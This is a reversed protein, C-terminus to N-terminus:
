SAAESMAMVDGKHLLINSWTPNSGFARYVTIFTTNKALRDLRRGCPQRSGVGCFSSKLNEYARDTASYPVRTNSPLYRVVEHTGIDGLMSTAATFQRACKDNFGTIYHTRLATADPITDYLTYGSATGVKTGLQRQSVDCNIAIEGFPLKTGVTVQQMGSQVHPASAVASTDTAQAPSRAGGFLRGFFGPSETPATIQAAVADSDIGAAPLPADAMAQAVANSVPDDAVAVDSLRMVRDLPNGSCAGLIAVSVILAIKRM